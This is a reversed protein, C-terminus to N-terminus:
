FPPRTISQACFAIRIDERSNGGLPLIAYRNGWTGCELQRLRSRLCPRINAFRVVRIFESFHGCGFLKLLLELPHCFVLITQIRCRIFFRLSVCVLHAQARM